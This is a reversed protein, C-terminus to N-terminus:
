PFIINLIIRFLNLGYSETHQLSFHGEYRRRELTKRIRCALKEFAFILSFLNFTHISNYRDIEEQSAFGLRLPFLLGNSFTFNWKHFNGPLLLYGDREYQEKLTAMEQARILVLFVIHQIPALLTGKKFVSIDIIPLQPSLLKPFHRACVFFSAFFSFPLSRSFDARRRKESAGGPRM